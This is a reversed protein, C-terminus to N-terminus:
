FGIASVSGQNMQNVAQELARIRREHNQVKTFLYYGLGLATFGLGIALGAKRDVKTLALATEKLVRGTTCLDAAMSFQNEFVTPMLKAADDATVAALKNMDSGITSIIEPDPLAKLDSLMKMGGPTMEFPVGATDVIIAM